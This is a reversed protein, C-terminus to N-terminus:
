RGPPQLFPCIRRGSPAGPMLPALRASVARQVAESPTDLVDLLTEVISARQRPLPPDLPSTLPRHLPGLPLAPRHM